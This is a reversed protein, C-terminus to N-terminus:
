YFMFKSPKVVTPWDERVFRSDEYEKGLYEFLFRIPEGLAKSPFYILKYKRDM